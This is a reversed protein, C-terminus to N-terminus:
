PQLVLRFGTPYKRFNPKNSARCAIRCSKPATSWGGGRYVRAAARKSGNIWASGDAPTGTYNGHWDDEVWEWVNGSMDHIGLENAKLTGVPRITKRNGSQTPEANEECWAVEVLTNSGSYLYGRSQNGGRAAYEWEAETPLRYKKGTQANLKRVFEQADDWSVREVPCRDCSTEQSEPPGSGMVRRWEAQTVEYKGIHFDRVLVEHPPKEWEHCDGDRANNQCGMTIRGGPVFVMEPCGDCSAPAPPAPCGAHAALGKEAPCRDAKNPIGDADDDSYERVCERADAAHRGQPYRELYRKCGTLTSQGIDWAEDDARATATAAQAQAAASAKRKKADAILDDMRKDGDAPKDSQCGKAKEFKAVAEDYKKAKLLKNGAELYAAYCQATALAPLALFFLLAIHKM